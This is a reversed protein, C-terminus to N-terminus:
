CTKLMTKGKYLVKGFQSELRNCRDCVFLETKSLYKMQSQCVPCKKLDKEM